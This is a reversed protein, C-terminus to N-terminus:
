KFWDIRSGTELVVVNATPNNAMLGGDENLGTYLLTCPHIPSGVENAELSEM